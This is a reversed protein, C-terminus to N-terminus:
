MANATFHQQLTKCVEKHNSWHDLACKKSCYKAVDCECHFTKKVDVAENCNWCLFTRKTADKLKYYIEHLCDCSNRRHFFRIIERPCGNLANAQKMFEYRYDGGFDQNKDNAEITSLLLAYYLTTVVAQEKTLNKESAETVCKATGQAVLLNRFAEKRADNFHYYKGCTELVLHAHFKAHYESHNLSYELKDIYELLLSEAAGLDDRTANEPRVLHNCSARKQEKARKEKEAKRARGQAKKRSPM